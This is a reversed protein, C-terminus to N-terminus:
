CSPSSFATWCCPSAPAPAWWRWLSGGSRQRWRAWCAGVLVAAAATCLLAFLYKGQVVGRRGAPTAAAFKEWRAQDDYAFSSMPLMLGVLAVMGSLVSYPFVGAASLVGYIVLFGFYYLSNKRGVLFDKCVFGFM